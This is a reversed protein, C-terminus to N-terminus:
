HISTCFFHFILMYINTAHTSMYIYMYMYKNTAYLIFLSFTFHFIIQITLTHVFTLNIFYHLKYTFLYIYIYINSGTCKRQTCKLDSELDSEGQIYIDDQTTFSDQLLSVGSDSPTCQLLDSHSSQSSSFYLDENIDMQVDM